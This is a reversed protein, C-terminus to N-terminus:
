ERDVGELIKHQRVTVDFKGFPNYTRGVRVPFWDFPVGVRDDIVAEGCSEVIWKAFFHKRSLIFWENSGGTAIRGHYKDDFYRDIEVKVYKSV